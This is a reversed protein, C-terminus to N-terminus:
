SRAPVAPYRPTTADCRPAPIEAAEPGTLEARFAIVMDRAHRLGIRTFDKELAALEALTEQEDRGLRARSKALGLRSLAVGRPEQMESFEALSLTYTERAFEYRGARYFVNARMKHNYALASALDMTRCITEAESLLALARDTEGQVSLVDAVGRLSWARGRADDADAAIRASEEFLELAKDYGGTNRHMQAIGSMAWVMHRAEGHARGQELLQEHLEAVAAYDGQIRGTEALGALSYGHALRDGSGDALAVAHTLLRRALSLRGCQRALTGGSWLAWAMAGPEGATRASRYSERWADGAETVRGLRRNAEAVALAARSRELPTGADAQARSATALVEEYSSNVGLAAGLEGQYEPAFAKGYM